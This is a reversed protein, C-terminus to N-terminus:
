GGSAEIRGQLPPRPSPPRRPPVQGDVVAIVADAEEVAAVAQKEIMGPILEASRETGPDETRLCAFPLM